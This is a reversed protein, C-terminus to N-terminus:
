GYTPKRTVGQRRRRTRIRHCNACILDCKAIEVLIEELPRGIMRSIASIKASPDRHDFDMCEPSFTERCDLCPDKKLEWVLALNKQRWRRTCDRKMQAFSPDNRVRERTKALKTERNRMYWRRGAALAM